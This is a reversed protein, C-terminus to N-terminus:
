LGVFIGDHGNVSLESIIFAALFLFEVSSKLFSKFASLGGLLLEVLVIYLFFDVFNGSLHVFVKGVLFSVQHVVELRLVSLLLVSDIRM